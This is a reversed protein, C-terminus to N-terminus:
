VREQPKSAAIAADYQDATTQLVRIVDALVERSIQIRAQVAVKVTSGQLEAVRAARQEEDGVVVPPPVNGFALYIGDPVGRASPAGLQGLIQNSHAVPCAEAESWDVRVLVQDPVAVSAGEVLV